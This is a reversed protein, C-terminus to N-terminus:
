IGPKQQLHFLNSLLLIRNLTGSAEILISFTAENPTEGSEQAKLMWRVVDSLRGEKKYAGMLANFHNINVEITKMENLFYHEMKQFERLRGYVAIIRTLLFKNLKINYRHSIALVDDVVESSLPTSISDLIHCITFSDPIIGTKIMDDLTSKVQQYQFDQAYCTMITNFTIATPQALQKMQSFWYNMKKYMKKRGSILILSHWTHLTLTLKEKLVTRTLFELESIQKKTAANQFKAEYPTNNPTIWLFQKDRKHTFLNSLPTFRKKLTQIYGLM